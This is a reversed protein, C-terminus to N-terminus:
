VNRYLEKTDEQAGSLTLWLRHYLRDSVLKKILHKGQAQIEYFRKWGNKCSLLRKMKVISMSQPVNLRGFIRLNERQESDRWFDSTYVREYGAAICSRLVRQNWRGNPISIAKVATGLNDELVRKSQAVERELEADSCGTLMVHSWTHSQVEHGHSVLERLQQWDMFQKLQNTWSVTIFFIGRFGHQELLPLAYIHQSIHGDDFTFEPILYKTDSSRRLEVALQLHEAFQGTSCYYSYPNEEQGFQHYILFRKRQVSTESQQVPLTM